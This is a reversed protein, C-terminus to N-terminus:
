APPGPDGGGSTPRDAWAPKPRSPRKPGPLAASGIWMRNLARTLPAPRARGRLRGMAEHYPGVYGLAGPLYPYLKRLWAISREARRREAHGYGLGFDARLREPLLHATVARFTGGILPLPLNMVLRDAIHRAPATVTLEGSGLRRDREATFAAWDTPLTDPPIGFMAGLIRSEAVYRERLARDVRGLVAEHAVLAGDTLTMLVWRLAPLQNAFYPSGAAFPGADGSLAGKIGEHRRHLRRAADLAQEVSGFVFSFMASFTRHFRRFPDDLSISHDFVGQAVWPHAIQMLLARGASLFLISERDIQWTASEPGFLGAAPSPAQAEAWRLTRDLDAATVIEPSM